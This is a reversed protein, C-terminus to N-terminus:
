DRDSLPDHADVDGLVSVVYAERVAVMGAAALPTGLIIGLPGFLTGAATMSLLTLAPPLEVLRRQVLPSLVYGEVTHCVLFVGVTWLAAIPSVTLAVLVAPVGAAIAGFYPIFTLLGAVVALALPVPVGIISLGIATLIGVALMDVMQGLLWRRLTRGISRLIALARPRHGIPVLRVLGRQYLAPSIAFYLATILVLVTEALMGVTLGVVKLAPVSIQAASPQAGSLHHIALQGWRSDRYRSILTSGEHNLKGVLDQGQQVLQPGIWWAFGGAALLLLLCILTLALSVPLRTVRSLLDAGGRLTCGLLIAFFLLLLVHVFLWLVIGLAVALLAALLLSRIQMTSRDIPTALEEPLADPTEPLGPDPEHASLQRLSFMTAPRGEAIHQLLVVPPLWLNCTVM